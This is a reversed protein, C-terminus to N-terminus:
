SPQNAQSRIEMFSAFRAARSPRQRRMATLRGSLRWVPKCRRRSQLATTRPSPACGDGHRNSTPVTRSLSVHRLDRRLDAIDLTGTGLRADRSRTVLENWLKRGEDITNNALLSRANGVATQQDASGSLDFDFPAVDISRILNVVDADKATIGADKAAAKISEFIKRHKATARMQSIAFAVDAGAAWTKLDSWTAMSRIRRSARTDCAGLRRQRTADTWRGRRGMTAM